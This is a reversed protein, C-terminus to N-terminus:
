WHRCARDKVQDDLGATMSGKWLVEVSAHFCLWSGRLEHALTFMPNRHFTTLCYISRLHHKHELQYERQTRKKLFWEVVAGMYPLHHVNTRTPILDLQAPTDWCSSPCHLCLVSIILLINCSVIVVVHFFGTIFFPIDKKNEWVLFHRLDYCSWIGNGKNKKKRKKKEGRPLKTTASNPTTLTSLSLVSLECSGNCVYCGRRCQTSHWYQSQLGLVAVISNPWEFYHKVLM